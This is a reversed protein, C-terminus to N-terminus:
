NEIDQLNTERPANAIARGQRISSAALPKIDDASFGLDALGNPMDTQQMLDIIRRALVEGADDNAAGQMDANLYEAAELHRQPAGEAAYRFIAPASVVVSIGHPVFPSEVVYDRTTIDRMLHTVGYSLAHALHTGSNGFAMGALSAGWSLQDRAQRDGADSVGRVLFEGAIELAKRAALDSWPNAGQILPRKGPNDIKDWQTYARATYCELAHSLLDFGTSAVVNAPLSDCCAPDILAHNALMVPNALVFKTDLASIRIVSISTCESGTGSTTPCAIHKLLVGPMAKGAGIPPAFYDLFDATPYLAYLMAAKATDIVSGGGVSILGDFNGDAIFGAGREVSADDAEIRIESFVAFDIGAVRLSQGVSEVYPGDRLLPDTFLAVRSMGLLAARAGAEQLCGRGFTVKPIDVTFSDSGHECTDFYQCGM